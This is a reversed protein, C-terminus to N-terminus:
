GISVVLHVQIDGSYGLVALKERVESKASEIDGILVPMAFDDVEYDGISALIKGYVEVGNGYSCELGREKAWRESNDLEKEMPKGCLLDIKEVVPHKYPTGTDPNYKTVYTVIEEVSFLEDMRVGVVVSASYSISM